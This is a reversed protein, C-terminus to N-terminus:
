GEMEIRNGGWDLMIRRYRFGAEPSMLDRFFISNWSDAPLIRTDGPGLLGTRCQLITGYVADPETDMINEHSSPPYMVM